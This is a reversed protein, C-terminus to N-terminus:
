CSGRRSCRPRPPKAGCRRVTSWSAQQHVAVAPLSNNPSHVRLLPFDGRHGQSPPPKRLAGSGARRAPTTHKRKPKRRSERLRRSSRRGRRPRRRTGLGSRTQPWCGRRHTVGGGRGVMTRSPAQRTTARWTSETFASSTSRLTPGAAQPHPCRRGRRAYGRGCLMATLRRITESLLRRRGRGSREAEFCLALM